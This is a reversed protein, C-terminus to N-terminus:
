WEFEGSLLQLTGADYFSHERFLYKYYNVLKERKSPPLKIRTMYNQLQNMFALNMLQPGAATMMM